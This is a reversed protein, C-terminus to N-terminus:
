QKSDCAGEEIVAEELMVRRSLRVACRAPAASGSTSPDISRSSSALLLGLRTSGESQMSIIISILEVEEESM